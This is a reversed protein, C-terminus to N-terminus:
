SPRREVLVLAVDDALRNGSFARLEALVAELAEDLPLDALAGALSDLDLFEGGAGRAETLGDTYLLMRSGPPWPHVTPEPAPGLGIPTTAAGTDLLRVERAPGFL